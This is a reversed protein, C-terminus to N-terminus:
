ATLTQSIVSTSGDREPMGPWALSSPHVAFAGLVVFCALPLLKAV